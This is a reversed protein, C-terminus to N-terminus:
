KMTSHMHMNSFLLMLRIRIELLQLAPFDEYAKVAAKAADITAKDATSVKKPLAKVADDAATLAADSQLM